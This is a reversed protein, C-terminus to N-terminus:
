TRGEDGRRCYGSRRYIPVPIRPGVSIPTELGVCMGLAVATTAWGFALRSAAAIALRVVTPTGLPLLMVVAAGAAIRNTESRNVYVNFTM